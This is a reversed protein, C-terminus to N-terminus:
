SLALPDPLGSIGIFDLIGPTSIDRCLFGCGGQHAARSLRHNGQGAGARPPLGGPGGAPLPEHGGAGEPHVTCPPKTGLAPHM